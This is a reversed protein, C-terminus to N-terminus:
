CLILMYTICLSYGLHFFGLYDFKKFPSFIHFSVSSFFICPSFILVHSSGTDGANAPLCKEVAGGPFGRIFWQQETAWDHGARQSGMSQLMDPKGERRWWRRSNAWVWTWQTLSAMWCDWGRESGEGGARLRGWCWPRKFVVM